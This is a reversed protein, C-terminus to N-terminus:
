LRLTLGIKVISNFVSDFKNMMFNFNNSQKHICILNKETMRELYENACNKGFIQYRSKGDSKIDCINYERM